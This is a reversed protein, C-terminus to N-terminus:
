TRSVSLLTLSPCMPPALQAPRGTPPFVVRDVLATRHAPLRGRSHRRLMAMGLLCCITLAACAGAMDMDAHLTTVSVSPELTSVVSVGGNFDNITISDPGAFLASAAPSAVPTGTRSTANAHQVTIAGIALVLILLAATAFKVLLKRM